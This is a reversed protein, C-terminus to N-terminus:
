VANYQMNKLTYSKLREVSRLLAAPHECSLERRVLRKFLPYFIRPFVM